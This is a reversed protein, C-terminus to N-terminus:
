PTSRISAQVWIEETSHDQDNNEIIVGRRVTEGRVDHFGADFRLTMISVEGPPIVASTFDATTCGCTTYARSITLPAEGTNAIVFDRTVVDNPGLSGFDYYRQDVAIAPQPGGRPLFAISPGGGMEHVAHLPVDHAIEDASYEIKTESPGRGSWLLWGGALILSGGVAFVPILMSWRRAAKSRRRMRISAGSAAREAM